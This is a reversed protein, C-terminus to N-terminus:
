RELVEDGFADVLDARLQELDRQRDALDSRTVAAQTRALALRAEIEAEDALRRAAEGEGREIEFEASELRERAFRLELPAYQSAGAERAQDIASRANNLMTPDPPITACGAAMLIVGLILGAQISTRIARMYETATNLRPTM